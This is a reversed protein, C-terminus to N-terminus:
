SVTIPFANSAAQATKGAFQVTELYLETNGACAFPVTSKKPTLHCELIKCRGRETELFIGPWPDFALYKRYIDTATEINPLVEGDRRSFKGCFTAQSDDQVRKQLKNALYDQIFQPFIQATKKAMESWLEATSKSEIEHEVQHLIDGADLAKVMQQWTIGSLSDGNLIAAQVPSAGRYRPLLSFHVNITPVELIAEPFIMGFAIVVGLDYDVQACIDILAQKNPIEFLPLNLERASVKVPCPTLVQKRGVPRDPFVGVGVIEVTPDNALAVLSSVAIDPTGFFFIRLPSNM